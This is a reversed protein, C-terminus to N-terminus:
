TVLEESLEGPLGGVFWLVTPTSFTIRSIQETTTVACHYSFIAAFIDDGSLQSIRATILNRCALFCDGASIWRWSHWTYPGSMILSLITLRHHPCNVSPRVLTCSSSSLSLFDRTVGSSLFLIEHLVKQCSCHPISPLSKLPLKGPSMLSAVSPNCILQLTPSAVSSNSFSSHHLHFLLHPQLILSQENELGEM